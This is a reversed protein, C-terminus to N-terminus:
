SAGHNEDKHKYIAFESNEVKTSCIDCSIIEETAKIGEIIADKNVDEAPAKYLHM